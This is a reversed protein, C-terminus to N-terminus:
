RQRENKLCTDSPVPRVFFVVNAAQTNDGGVELVNSILSDWSDSSDLDRLGDPGSVGVLVLILPEVPLPLSQEIHIWTQQLKTISFRYYLQCKNLEATFITSAVTKVRVMEAVNDKDTQLYIVGFICVLVFM